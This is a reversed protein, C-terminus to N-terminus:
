LLEVGDPPAVLQGVTSVDTKLPDQADTVRYQVHSSLIDPFQWGYNNGGDSNGIHEEDLTEWIIGDLAYEVKFVGSTTYANWSITEDSCRVGGASNNVTIYEKITSVNTSAGISIDSPDSIRVQFENPPGIPM